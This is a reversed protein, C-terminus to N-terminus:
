SSLASTIIKGQYVSSRVSKNLASRVDLPLLWAELLLYSIFTAVVAGEIGFHSVFLIKLFLALLATGLGYFLQGRLRSIGNLFVVFPETWAWMVQMLAMPIILKLTPVLSPGAWLKIITRGWITLGGSLFVTLISGVILSIKLTKRIWFFDTRTYAEGYAPWLPNILLAQIIRVYGFLKWATGFMAVETPGLIRIIIINDSQSIIIGGLQLIVFMIGLHLLSGMHSKKIFHPYPIIQRRHFGFLFVFNALQVILQIGFIAIVLLPLGGKFRTVIFLASISLLNAVINWWNTYYGEQFGSYINRIIGLPFSLGFIGFSLAIAVPLERIAQQSKIHLLVSWPLTFGGLFGILIIFIGIFSLLWFASAVLNQAEEWQNRGKAEALKNTLANGVGLDSLNFWALISFLTLWLGFRETGLYRVTLAVSIFGTIGTLIASVASVITTRTAKVYRARRLVSAEEILDNKYTKGWLAERFISLIKRCM